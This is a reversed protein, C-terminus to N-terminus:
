SDSGAHSMVFSSRRLRHIDEQPETIAFPMIKDDITSRLSYLFARKLKRHVARQQPSKGSLVFKGLPNNDKAMAREGEYFQILAGVSQGLFMAFTQTQSAQLPRHHQAQHYGDDVGVGTEIGLSPSSADSLFTNLVAPSTLLCFPLVVHAVIENLNIPKIRCLQSEAGMINVFPNSSCLEDGHFYEAIQYSM